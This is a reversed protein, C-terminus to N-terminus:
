DALSHDGTVESLFRVNDRNVVLLETDTDVLVVEHEDASLVQAIRKRQSPGVKQSDAVVLLIEDNELEPVKYKRLNDSDKQPQM